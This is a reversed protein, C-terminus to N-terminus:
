SFYKNSSTYGVLTKNIDRIDKVESSGNVSIITRKLRTTVEPSANKDIKKLGELERQVDNEDKHTLLKFVVENGSPLTFSFKNGKEYNKPDIEINELQKEFKSNM